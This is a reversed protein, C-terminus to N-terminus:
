KNKNEIIIVLTGEDLKNTVENTLEGTEFNVKRLYTEEGNVLIKEMEINLGLASSSEIRKSRELIRYHCEIDDTRQGFMTPFQIKLKAVGTSDIEQIEMKSFSHINNFTTNTLYFFNYSLERCFMSFMHLKTNAVLDNIQTNCNYITTIKRYDAGGYFTDYYVDSLLDNGLDDFYTFNLEFVVKSLIEETNNEKSCSIISIYCFLITSLLTTTKM